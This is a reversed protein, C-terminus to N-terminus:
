PTIPIVEAPQALATTGWAVLGCFSLFAVAQKM